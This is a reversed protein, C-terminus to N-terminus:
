YFRNHLDPKSKKGPSSYSRSRYAPCDQSEKYFIRNFQWGIMIEHTGWKSLGGLDGLGHDYSYGIRLQPTIQTGILLSFQSNFRYIAGLWFKDNYSRNPDSRLFYFLMGAETRNIKDRYAYSVSPELSLNYSANFRTSAYAWFNRSHTPWADDDSSNVDLLHRIAFGLKFLGQYEVGIDFDPAYESKNNLLVQPDDPEMIVGDFNRNRHFLSASLGMSIASREGIPIYYAYAARVNYTKTFGIKDGSISFGVASQINELYVDGSVVGTIPAGDLGIWQKRAHLFISTTFSNGTAAPNYVSENFWRQSLDFDSQAYTSVSSAM